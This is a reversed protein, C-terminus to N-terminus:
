TDAWFSHQYTQGGERVLPGILYYTHQDPNGEIDLFLETSQRTLTPTAHLYVKGMRLAPAQLGLHHVVALRTRPKRKKRPRFLYSLQRVTFIGKRHYRHMAKPTM